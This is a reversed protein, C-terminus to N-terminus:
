NEIRSIKGEKVVTIKKILPHTYTHSVLFINLHEEELLIDILKEKGDSDLVGDIEDLFLVNFSTGAIKILTKRIALLTATQIRSYEGASFTEIPAEKNSNIVIINLKEGELRFIVQFEGDSLELLYENISSELEKVLNELKFAVLGSPSFAKKLVNLNAIKSKLNIIDSNLLEQRALFERKQQTLTQIRINNEKVSNNYKIANKNDLLQKNLLTRLEQLEKEIKSYDPFEKPLDNKILQSLHEFRKIRADNDQYLKNTKKYEQLRTQLEKLKDNFEKISIEINKINNKANTQLEINKTNDLPQGCAYCSEATNLNKIIKEESTKKESLSYINSNTSSILTELEKIESESIKPLDFNLEISNREEEYLNNQQIEDCIKNYTLLDSELRKINYSLEEDILPIEIEQLEQPIKVDNLFKNVGDLEGQLKTYQKEVEVLKLKIIDNYNTYKELNFLNILFKKRTSDTAKLFELIDSSSQYTLQSFIEFDVKLIDRLKKYTDPIKHESIDKNNELLKVKSTAGKRSVDLEYYNNTETELFTIKGKWETDKIYRNLIDGKKIGKINKSYLLEQLILSVSTKGAGNIANFQNIREENLKVYNDKGYSFMNSFELEKIIIM